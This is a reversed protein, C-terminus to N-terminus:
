GRALGSVVNTLAHCLMGPVLSRRARALVGLLLGYVVMRGIGLAGQEGHAIAFLVAQLAIAGGPGVVAALQTQLYGRFVLEESFAVVLAVVGWALRELVSDPLMAVVSPPTGAGFARSAAHDFAVIAVWGCVALAIDGFARGGTSWGRGVLATLASRPRGVRAVYLALGTQVVVIPFYVGGVRNEAPSPPPAGGRTTLWWGTMAVALQLTVLAATHWHPALPASDEDRPTQAIPM